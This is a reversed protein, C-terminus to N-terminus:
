RVTGAPRIISLVLKLHEGIRTGGRRQLEDAVRACTTSAVGSRNQGAGCDRRRLTRGIRQETEARRTVDLTARNVTLITCSEAKLRRVDLM